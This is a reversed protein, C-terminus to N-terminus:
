NAPSLPLFITHLPGGFTAAVGAHDSAWRVGSAPLPILPEAGMRRISGVPLHGRMLLLDIRSSLLSEENRLDAEQCCTLGAGMSNALAWVDEFGGDMLIAAADDDVGPEANFDGILLAPWESQAPGSLLENAQNVRVSRLAAELHTNVVHVTRPGFTADVSVWQRPLEIWGLCTPFSLRAEYNGTQVNAFTVTEENSRVLLYNGVRLEVDGDHTPFVIKFGPASALVSYNEGRGSLADLIMQVFDTTQGEPWQESWVTGEQIGVLHPRAVAIEAAIAAARAPFDTALAAQYAATAADVFSDCNTIVAPIPNTGFYLNRTMVRLESTLSPSRAARAGPAAVATLLIAVMLVSLLLTVKRGSM